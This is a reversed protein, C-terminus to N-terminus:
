IPKAHSLLYEEAERSWLGNHTECIEALRRFMPDTEGLKGFDAIATMPMSITNYELKKGGPIEPLHLITDVVSDLGGVHTVMSAPNIRGAAAMDLAEQMDDANGGSNGCIHIRNYHVKYFNIKASFAHDIPGAFFNMCGDVGIIDSAQQIVDEVPAFILIDDYGKGGSLQMMYETMGPKATNVYHLAIGLKQAAEVTYISAARALREENIDTVVLLKPANECHLAYDIAGLGMPGVSALLALNGGKKTGLIHKYEGKVTHFNTHYAGIICSMPEALSGYFYADQEYHLLCNNEMAESPLIAYQSNGGCYPYSYGPAALSDINPQMAFKQGAQYRGKWKAGVELIEGCFEHGLMVPMQAVNNPVKSHESGQQVAKYTSMCLSDSVVRVLIEDERIKPLEVEGFLLQNKGAMRVAKTKM